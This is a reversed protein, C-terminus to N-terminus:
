SAARAQRKERRRFLGILDHIFSRDTSVELTDLGIQRFADALLRRRRVSAAAFRKRLGASATDLLAREGTEADQIEVLGASVLQQERPDTVPVAIVDHKRRMIRLATRVDEPLVHGAVLDAGPLIFDSVVFVVSKKKLVGRLHGLAGAMDTGAGPRPAFELLERIVRLVHNRGKKPPIFLEIRDTHILLGVRDHSRVAAFAIVACLEAATENKLRAVSGFAGSGSMDVVLMVTLEREEVFRKVHPVGSRATVNWDIMRVDDGPQYERVESFEMGRGKFASTYEGAFVENVARRTFVQLHRVQQLLEEPLM